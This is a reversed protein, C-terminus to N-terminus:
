CQPRRKDLCLFVVSTCECFYDTSMYVKRANHADAKKLLSLNSAASSSTAEDVSSRYASALEPEKEQKPDMSATGTPKYSSPRRPKEGGGGTKGSVPRKVPSSLPRQPKSGDSLRWVKTGPSSVAPFARIVHQEEHFCM